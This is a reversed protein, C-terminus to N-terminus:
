HTASDIRLQGCAADARVGKSWRVTAVVGADRLTDRFKEVSRPMPRGFPSGPIPNYPILNVTGRVRRLRRALERAHAPLDNRGALLVYEFTVDRGSINFYERASEILDALTTKRATPILQHRIEDNPAHLSIALTYPRGAKAFEVIKAPIGVTSVTIRRGSIGLGDKSTALDLAGLVNALNLMPEGIGMVVIRGFPAVQKARIMQEVIEHKHLNRVVGALGSACFTCAMACGVQTSICITGATTGPMWVTEITEQDALQLLLKVTGDPAERRSLVTNEIAAVSQSLEEALARPLDTMKSFDDAAKQYIWRLANQAQYRRGGLAEIKSAFEAPTLSLAASKAGRSDPDPPTESM